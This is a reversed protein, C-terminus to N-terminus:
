SPGFLLKPECNACVTITLHLSAGDIACVARARRDTSPASSVAQGQPLRSASIFGSSGNAASLGGADGGEANAGWAGRLLRRSGETPDETPDQAGLLAQLAVEGGPDLTQFAIMGQRARDHERREGEDIAHHMGHTRAVALRDDGRIHDGVFLGDPAAHDDGEDGSPELRQRGDRQDANKGERQIGRAHLDIGPRVLELHHAIREDSQDASPEQRRLEDGDEPAPSLQARGFRLRAVIVLVAVAFVVMIVVTMIM